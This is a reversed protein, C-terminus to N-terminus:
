NWRQRTKKFARTMFPNEEIGRDKINKRIVQTVAWSHSGTLGLKRDVWQKIPRVPPKESWNLDNANELFYGYKMMSVEGELDRVGLPKIRSRLHGSVGVPAEEKLFRSYDILVDELVNELANKLDGKFGRKDLKLKPM